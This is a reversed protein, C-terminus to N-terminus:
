YLRTNLVESLLTSLTVFYFILEKIVDDTKGSAM